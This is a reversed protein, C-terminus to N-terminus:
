FEQWVEMFEEHFNSPKVKKLNLSPIHDLNANTSVSQKKGQRKQTEEESRAEEGKEMSGKQRSLKYSPSVVTGKDKKFYIM